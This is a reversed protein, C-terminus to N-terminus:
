AEPARGSGTRLAPCLAPLQALQLGGGPGHWLDGTGALNLEVTTKPILGPLSHGWITGPGEWTGCLLRPTLFPSPLPVLRLRLSVVSHCTLDRGNLGRSM